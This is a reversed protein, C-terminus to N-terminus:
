HFIHNSQWSIKDNIKMEQIADANKINTQKTRMSMLILYEM